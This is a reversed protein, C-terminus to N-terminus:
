GDHRESADHACPTAPHSGCRACSEGTCMLCDDPHQPTWTCQPLQNTAYYGLGPEVLVVEEYRHPSVRRRGGRLEPLPQGHEFVGRVPGGLMHRVQPADPHQVARM